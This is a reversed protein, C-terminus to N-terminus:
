GCGSSYNEFELRTQMLEKERNLLCLNRMAEREKKDKIENYPIAQVPLKILPIDRQIIGSVIECLLKGTHKNRSDERDKYFVGQISTEKDGRIILENYRIIGRTQTLLMLPDKIKGKHKTIFTKLEEMDCPSSIDCNWAIYILEDSVPNVIVGIDRFIGTQNIEGEYYEMTQKAYDDSLCGIISAKYFQNPDRIRNIKHWIRDPWVINVNFDLLGSVIYIFNNPDHEIPNTLIEKFM